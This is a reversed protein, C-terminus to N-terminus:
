VYSKINSLCYVWVEKPYWVSEPTITVGKGLMIDDIILNKKIRKLDPFRVSLIDKNEDYQDKIINIQQKNTIKENYSMFIIREKNEQWLNDYTEYDVKSKEHFYKFIVLM